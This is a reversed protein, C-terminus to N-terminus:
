LLLVSNSCCYHFLCLSPKATPTLLSLARELSYLWTSSYKALFSIGNRTSSYLHPFSRSSSSSVTFSSSHTSFTLILDVDLAKRWIISIKEPSIMCVQVIISSELLVKTSAIRRILSYTTLLRSLQKFFRLSDFSISALLSEIILRATPICIIVGSYHSCM